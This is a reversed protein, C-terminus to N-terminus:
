PYCGRYANHLRQRSTNNYSTGQQENYQNLLATDVVLKLKCDHTAM